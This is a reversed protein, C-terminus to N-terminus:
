FEVPNGQADTAQSAGGGTNKFFAVLGMEFMDKTGSNDWDKKATQLGKTALGLDNNPYCVYSPGNMPLSGYAWLQYSDVLDLYYVGPLTEIPTVAQYSKKAEVVGRPESITTGDSRYYFTYCFDGPTPYVGEGPITKNLVTPGGSDWNADGYAWMINGMPRQAPPIDQKTSDQVRTNFFPNPPYEGLYGAAVLPDSWQNFVRYFGYDWGFPQVVKHEPGGGRMRLEDRVTNDVLTYTGGGYAYRVVQVGGFLGLSFFSAADSTMGSGTDTAIYPDFGPATYTADDFWRVRFPYQSNNDTGFAELARHIERLNAAAQTERQRTRVDLLRPVALGVLIAIIAIVVLLEVLTFGGLAGYGALQRLTKGPRM